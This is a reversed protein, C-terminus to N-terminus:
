ICSEHRPGVAPRATGVAGSSWGAPASRCWRARGASARRRSRLLEQAWRGGSDRHLRRGRPGTRPARRCRRRFGRPRGAAGGAGAGEEARRPDRFPDRLGRPDAPAAADPPSGVGRTTEVAPVRQPGALQASAPAVVLGCGVLVPILRWRIHRRMRRGGPSGEMAAAGSSVDLVYTEATCIVSITAAPRPPDLARVSLETLTVLRPLSAVAEIFATLEHFSGTLELRVRRTVYPPRSGAPLPTFAVVTLASQTALTQMERLVIAAESARPFVRRLARLRQELGAGEGSWSRFGPRRKPARGQNGRTAPAVGPTRDGACRAAAGDVGNPFRRRRGGVGVLVALVRGYWPVRSLWPQM